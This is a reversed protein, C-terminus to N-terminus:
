AEKWLHYFAFFACYIGTGIGVPVTMHPSLYVASLIFFVHSDKM